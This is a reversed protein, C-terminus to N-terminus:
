EYRFLDMCQKIYEKFSDQCKKTVKWSVGCLQM